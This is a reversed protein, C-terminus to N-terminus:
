GSGCLALLDSVAARLAEGGDAPAILGLSRSASQWGSLLDVQGQEQLAARGQAALRQGLYEQETQGPTPILLARKGLAAWDMLSSYGPRGVVVAAASLASHLAKGGMFSHIAVGSEERQAYRETIGQVLVHRGPIAKLQPLLERELHSRAPEPGSLAVLLDISNQPKQAPQGSFRSLPGIFRVPLGDPTPQSLAGSLSGEGAADPVWCHGYQRAFWRNLGNGLVSAWRNPIRLNLQHTLFVTPVRRSFCGFRNDSIVAKIGAAEIYAQLQQQEHWAARALKPAQRAMNVAMSGPQYSVGYAPLPLHMLDPREAKLLAAARGASAFVPVAGQRQLEDAIPLSRAAHGLGWDLVALLVKPRANM